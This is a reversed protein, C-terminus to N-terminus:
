EEFGDVAVAQARIDAAFQELVWGDDILEGLRDDVEALYAERDGYLRALQDGPLDLQSGYVLCSGPSLDQDPDVPENRGLHTAVPVNLTTSRVGGRANGHEDRAVALGEDGLEGTLEIRETRPPPVDAEVSRLLHDLAMSVTPNDPFSSLPEACRQAAAAEIALGNLETCSVPGAHM